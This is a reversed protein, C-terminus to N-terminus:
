PNPRKLEAVYPRNVFMHAVDDFLPLVNEATVIESLKVYVANKDDFCLTPVGFCDYTAKAYEHDRKLV